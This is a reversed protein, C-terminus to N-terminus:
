EKSSDIDNKLEIQYLEQEWNWIETYDKSISKAQIVEPNYLIANCRQYMPVEIAKDLVEDYFTKCIEERQQYILFTDVVNIKRTLVENLPQNRYKTSLAPEYSTQWAGCWLDATGDDVANWFTTADEEDCINFEIGITKLAEKTALLVEYSPHNGIGFGNVYINYELPGGAPAEICKNTHDDFVYGAQILFDKAAKLALRYREDYSMEYSFIANGRWNESYCPSKLTGIPSYWMGRSVPYQILDVAGENRDYIYEERYVSLLTAIAKRLSISESSYADKGIKVNDLNMGIYGYGLANTKIITIPTKGKEKVEQFRSNSGVIHTLDVKESKMAAIREMENMYIYEINQIKPEGLYFEPNASMHVNGHNYSDFVYPGAGLPHSQKEKDLTYKGKLFGFQNMDYDYLLLDGYYHLPYVPIALQYLFSADYGNTRIIVTDKESKQIGAISSVTQKRDETTSAGSESNESEEVLDDELYEKLGVINTDKLQVEGQYKPDCYLYLSFIVDDTTLIVGDSFKVDERIEIEYTTQDKESDYSIDINSLGRYFYNNNEFLLTQGDKAKLIPKGSRDFDMLKVQIQNLVMENGAYLLELPHYNENLKDCGIRLTDKTIKESVDTTVDTESMAEEKQNKDNGNMQIKKIMTSANSCDTMFLIM